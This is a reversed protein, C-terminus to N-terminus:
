RMKVADLSVVPESGLVEASHMVGAPVHIAQGARLERSEGDMEILFRGSLVVEIKAFDHCHEAFRTAPPYEYRFVQYGMADLQEGLAEEDQETGALPYWDAITM